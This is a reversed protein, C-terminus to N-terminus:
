RIMRPRFDGISARYLLGVGSLSLNGLSRSEPLTLNSGNQLRGHGVRLVIEITKGALSKFIMEAMLGVDRGALPSGPGFTNGFRLSVVSLDNRKAAIRYHHEAATKHIGQVDLPLM